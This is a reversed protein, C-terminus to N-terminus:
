AQPHYTRTTWTSQGGSHGAMGWAYALSQALEGMALVSTFAPRDPGASVTMAPADATRQPIQRIRWAIAIVHHPTPASPHGHPRARRIRLTHGLVSLESAVRM